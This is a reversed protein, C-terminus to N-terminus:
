DGTVRFSLYYYRGYDSHADAFYGFYRDALPAREDTLNRIGLRFRVKLDSPGFYYSFTANWRNFDPFWWRDGQDLTLSDQYFEGLGTRNISAGYAGKRWSLTLNHKQKQFGDNEVLESFGGIPIDPPIVGAAKAAALESAVGGPEQEFEDLFSGQYRLTWKGLKTEMEGYVGLDYGRVTRRDLNAYRDDINKILGAPCIGAAEFIAAEDDELDSVRTVAPNAQLASCNGSGHELRRLLDLVTHNEEGLLGITDEKEISWYDLTVTWSDLPTLVLGVSYNESQESILSESGQAIRQTSNRCDLVDQDPDGGRTAAYFCAFDTRTNQRAVVEENVTILNPARFAQSWSARVSLPNFVQWGLALKGVVTDGIDSLDEYRVAAQMDVKPLLSAQVETFLSTVARDGENDPTPSSNVVDSVFPFTDGQYDTFVITGDLRPDRDDVFSEERYEAGALFAVPGAPLSFLETNSLKFDVLLLDTENNRYVDVLAREINSNVGGSFPNYAAPTPDFLAEAILLNSVRNRTLDEREAESWLFAGEWDWSDWKGRFGQLVRFVSSDNEIIRPVQAFRYNDIELEVGSCPVSGIVSDPLRNPSGCPGFPNYHNEAGVRLKVTSFPASPHRSLVSDSDWYMLETFSEMGNEFTHNLFAFFTARTLEASVDRFENLNYRYTGQGDVGGCTTANLQWQCNEHGTPYTEFEGSNDTLRGRIGYRSVSPRIDFQGYLSNASNSRFRTDGSWPSDEPVLDRIDSNAWRADEQSSVRDRDKYDVLIALNTAGDNFFRGWELNLSYVDRSIHEYFDGRLQVKFGDIDTKLVYNVVGAVADAGYIASAGDKLIELREIGYVPVINSNVTNVPVFSGGVEETQFSAENVMRRGNLLVLTNGTGLNRLNFAGVDGRASNVGGSINEAENFYNQGQEPLMDFLEDGSDAGLFEIDESTLVTVPLIGSIDAGRIQTGTVVIEEIVKVQEEAEGDQQALAFQAGLSFALLWALSAAEVTNLRFRKM